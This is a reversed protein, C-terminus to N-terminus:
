GVFTQPYLTWNVALITGIYAWHAGGDAINAGTGTPGGSGACTGAGICAYLKGSDNTVVHRPTGLPGATVPAGAVTSWAVVVGLAAQLTISSGALSTTVNALAFPAENPSISSSTLLSTDMAGSSSRVAQLTGTFDATVSVGPLLDARGKLVYHVTVSGPAPVTVGLLGAPVSVSATSASAGTGLPGFTWQGAPGLELQSGALPNGPVNSGPITVETRKKSPNDVVTVGSGFFAWSKRQNLPVVNGFGDIVSVVVSFLDALWSM